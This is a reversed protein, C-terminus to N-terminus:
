TEEAVLVNATRQSILRGPTGSAESRIAEEGCRVRKANCEVFNQSPVSTFPSGDMASSSGSATSSSGKTASSMMCMTSNAFCSTWFMIEGRSFRAWKSRLSAETRFGPSAGDIAYRRDGFAEAASLVLAHSSGIWGLVDFLVAAGCALATPDPLGADNRTTTNPVTIPDAKIL